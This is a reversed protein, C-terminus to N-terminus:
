ALTVTKLASKSGNKMLQDRMLSDGGNLSGTRSVKSPITDEAFTFNPQKSSQSGDRIGDKGVAKLAGGKEFLPPKPATSNITNGRSDLM